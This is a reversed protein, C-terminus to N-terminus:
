LQRQLEETAGEKPLLSGRALLLRSLGTSLGARGPHPARKAESLREATESGAKGRRKTSVDRAGTELQYRVTDMRNVLGDAM